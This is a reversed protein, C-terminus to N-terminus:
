VVILQAALLLAPYCCPSVRHYTPHWSASASPSASAVLRRQSISCQLSSNVVPLLDVCRCLVLSLYIPTRM